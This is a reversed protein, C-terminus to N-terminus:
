PELDIMQKYNPGEEWDKDFSHLKLRLKKTLGEIIEVGGVITMAQKILKYFGTVEWFLHCEVPEKNLKM